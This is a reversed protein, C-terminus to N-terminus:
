KDEQTLPMIFALLCTCANDLDHDRVHTNLQRELASTLTDNWTTVTEKTLFDDALMM